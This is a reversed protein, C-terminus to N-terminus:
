QEYVAKVVHVSSRGSWLPQVRSIFLSLPQPQSSGNGPTPHSDVGPAEAVQPSSPPDPPAFRCDSTAQAETLGTKHAVGEEPLTNQVLLLPRVSCRVSCTAPQICVAGGVRWGAAEAEEEELKQWLRRLVQWVRDHSSLEAPSITGFSLFYSASTYLSRATALRSVALPKM